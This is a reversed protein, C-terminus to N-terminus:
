ITNSEPCYKYLLEEINSRRMIGVQELDLQLAQLKQQWKREEGEVSNELQQLKNEQSFM